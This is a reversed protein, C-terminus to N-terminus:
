EHSVLNLTPTSTINAVQKALENQYAKERRRITALRNREERKIEQKLLQDCLTEEAEVILEALTQDHRIGRPLPMEINIKIGLDAMISRVKSQHKATTVSYRYNNFIVKGEVIAVFRWWSYSHADLTEPNFTVNNSKYIGSRKMLKM